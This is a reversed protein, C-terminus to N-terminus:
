HEDYCDWCETFGLMSAAPRQGCSPCMTHIDDSSRSPSLSPTPTFEYADALHEDTIPLTTQVHGAASSVTRSSNNAHPPPQSSVPETTARGPPDRPETTQLKAAGDAQETAHSINRWGMTHAFEEITPPTRDELKAQASAEYWQRAQPQTLCAEFTVRRGDKFYVSEQWKDMTDTRVQESNASSDHVPVHLQFSPASTGHEGISQLLQNPTDSHNPASHTPDHEGTSQLLLDRKGLSQSQSAATLYDQSDMAATRAKKCPSPRRGSMTFTLCQKAEFTKLWM